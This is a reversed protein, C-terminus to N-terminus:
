AFFGCLLAFPALILVFRDVNPLLETCSRAVPRVVTLPGSGSVVLLSAFRAPINVSVDVVAAVVGLYLRISLVPGHSYFALEAAWFLERFPVVLAIFTFIAADFCVYLILM